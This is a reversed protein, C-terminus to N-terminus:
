LPGIISFPKNRARICTGCTVMSRLLQSFTFDPLWGTKRYKGKEWFPALSLLFVARKLFHNRQVDFPALGAGRLAHGRGPSCGIGNVDNCFAAWPLAALRQKHHMGNYESISLELNTNRVELRFTNWHMQEPFCSRGCCVWTQITLRLINCADLSLM